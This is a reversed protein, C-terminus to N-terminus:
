RKIGRLEHWLLVHFHYVAREYLSSYRGHKFTMSNMGRQTSNCVEIDEDQIMHSKAVSKRMAQKAHWSDFDEYDFYFDFRVRCRDVSIPEIINVDMMNGYMNIFLNPFVYAYIVKDGLRKDAGNSQGIQVSTRRFVHTELKSSELGDALSDGHIYRVHLGGDLANDAFVKWNCNMEYTKSMSSECRLRKFGDVLYQNLDAVDTYLNTPNNEGGLPGDLDLFVLPGWTNVSIPKLGYREKEFCKQKGLGPCSRLSGDHHYTWGHYPCEFFECHGSEQDVIAGKHRCVNHRAYLKDKSNVVVFPNGVIEGTFYDGPHRCCDSRGVAIWSRQFIRAQEQEYFIPDCYWTFPPTRSDEIGRHPDFADLIEDFTKHPM